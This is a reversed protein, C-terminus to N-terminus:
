LDNHTWFICGIIEAVKQVYGCAVDRPLLITLAPICYDIKNGTEDEEKKRCYESTQKAPGNELVLLLKRLIPWQRRPSKQCERWRKLEDATNDCLVQRSKWVMLGRYDM